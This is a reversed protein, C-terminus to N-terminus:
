DPVAGQQHRRHGHGHQRVFFLGCRMKQRCGPAYTKSIRRCISILRIPIYKSRCYITGPYVLPKVSGVNDGDGSLPGKLVELLRAKPSWVLQQEMSRPVGILLDSATDEFYITASSGIYGIFDDRRMGGDGANGAPTIQTDKVYMQVSDINPILGTITYMIAAYSRLAQDTDPDEQQTPLASFRLTVNYRGDETETLVPDEEFTLDEAVPSAMTATNQPGIQLERFLASFYDGDEYTVSRVEPLIYGGDSSVFYLVTRLTTKVPESEPADEGDPTAEDDPVDEGDPPVSTDADEDPLAEGIVPVGAQYEAEAQLWADEISGTQKQMPEAPVGFYGSATGNYFFYIYEAGLVDTITNALAAELIYRDEPLMEEGDYLLYVNAMDHSYEIYDLAMGDPAVGTLEQNGSPGSLLTEIAVEAPNEDQDIVLTRLEATLTDSTENLFYVATTDVRGPYKNESMDLESVAVVTGAAGSEKIVGCGCLLLCLTAAFAIVKKM